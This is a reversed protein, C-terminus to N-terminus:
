SKADGARGDRRAGPVSSGKRGGGGPPRSPRPGGSGGGSSGAGGTGSGAAGTAGTRKAKTQRKPQNRQGTAPRETGDVVTSGSATATDTPMPKGKRQRREQLANQAPSWPALMWRIVVFHQGM